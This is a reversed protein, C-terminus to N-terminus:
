ACKSAYHPNCERGGMEYRRFATQEDRRRIQIKYTRSLFPPINQNELNDRGDLMFYPLRIDTNGMRGSSKYAWQRYTCAELGTPNELITEDWFPIHCSLAIVNPKRSIEYLLRDAIMCAGCNSATFLEVVIPHETDIWAGNTPDEINARSQTSLLGIGLLIFIIAYTKYKLAKRFFRHM